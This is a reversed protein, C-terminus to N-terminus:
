EFQLSFDEGTLDSKKITTVKGDAVRVVYVEDDACYDGGIVMM